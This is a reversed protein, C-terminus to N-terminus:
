SLEWSVFKRIILSFRKSENEIRLNWKRKCHLMTAATFSVFDFCYLLVASTEEIMMRTRVNTIKESRFSGWKSKQRESFISVFVYFSFIFILCKPYDVFFSSVSRPSIEQIDSSTPAGNKKTEKVSTSPFLNSLFLFPLLSLSVFRSGHAISERESKPTHVNRGKVHSDTSKWLRELCCRFRYLVFLFLWFTCFSSNFFIVDFLLLAYFLISLLEPFLILSCLPIIKSRKQKM